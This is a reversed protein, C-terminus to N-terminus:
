TKAALTHVLYQGPLVVFLLFALVCLGSYETLLKGSDLFGM